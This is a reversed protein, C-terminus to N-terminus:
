SCIHMICDLFVLFHVTEEHGILHSTLLASVALVVIAPHCVVVISEFTEVITRCTRRVSFLRNSVLWFLLPLISLKHRRGEM